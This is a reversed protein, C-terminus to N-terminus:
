GIIASEMLYRKSTAKRQSGLGNIHVATFRIGDVHLLLAIIIGALTKKCPLPGDEKWLWLNWVSLGQFGKSSARLSTEARSLQRSSSPTNNTCRIGAISLAKTKGNLSQKRCRCGVAQPM